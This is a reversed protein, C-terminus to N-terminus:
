REHKLHVNKYIKNVLGVMVNYIFHTYLRYKGVFENTFLFEM